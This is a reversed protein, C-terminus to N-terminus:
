DILASRYMEVIAAAAAPWGFRAIAAARGARARAEADERERVAVRLAERWAGADDVPLLEVDEGAVEPLSSSNAALFPAGACRAQAVAYGFGEYRSPAVVVTARSYLDLMEARAVYGRFEIRGEVGLERALRLCENRYRTAPGVAILRLEPLGPLARIVLALNKRPEITGVSLAFPNPDPMREVAAVDASVGPYVVAVREPAFGGLSLLENRSFNSDVAIRPARRYRGLQFAGFYARAYPRTHRQVRLWAVDHVTAVLPAPAVLPLTGAACHLLEVRARRAALPLAIQDWVLRRDFRWPDLAPADLAVVELDSRAALAPILGAM